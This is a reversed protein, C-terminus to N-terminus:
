RRVGALGEEVLEPIGNGQCKHLKSKDGGITEKEHRREDAEGLEPLWCFLYELICNRHAEELDAAM